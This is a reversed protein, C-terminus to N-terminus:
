RSPRVRIGEFQLVMDNSSASAILRDGEIRGTCDFPLSGMIHRVSGQVAINNGDYTAQKIMFKLGAVHISVALRCADNSSRSARLDISGRKLGIPTKVSVAYTGTIENPM